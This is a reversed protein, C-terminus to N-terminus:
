RTAPRRRRKREASMQQGASQAPKVLRPLPVEHRAVTSLCAVPSLSVFAEFVRIVVQCRSTVDLKRYLRELHTHVTHSSIRLEEGIVRESQDRMLLRVIESERDSLDLARSIASWIEGFLVTDLVPSEIGTLVQSCYTNWSFGAADEDKEGRM